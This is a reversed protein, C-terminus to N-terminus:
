RHDFLGSKGKGGGRGAEGVAGPERADAKVHAQECSQAEPTDSRSDLDQSRASATRGTFVAADLSAIAGSVSILMQVSAIVGGRYVCRRGLMSRKGAASPYSSATSPLKARWFRSSCKTQGMPWEAGVALVAEGSARATEPQMGRWITLGSAMKRAPETPALSAPYHSTGTRRLTRLM